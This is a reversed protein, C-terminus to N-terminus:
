KGRAGNKITIVQTLRSLSWSISIGTASWFGIRSLNPFNM